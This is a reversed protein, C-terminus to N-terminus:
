TESYVRRFQNNNYDPVKCPEMYRADLPWFHNHLEPKECLILTSFKHAYQVIRIIYLANKVKFDQKKQLGIVASSVPFPQLSIVM